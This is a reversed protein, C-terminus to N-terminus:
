NRYVIRHKDIGLFWNTGDEETVQIYKGAWANLETKNGDHSTDITLQTLLGRISYEKSYDKCFWKKASANAKTAKLTQNRYNATIYASHQFTREWDRKYTARNADAISSGEESNSISSEESNALSSKFRKPKTAKTLIIVNMMKEVIETPTMSMIEERRIAFAKKIREIKAEEEALLEDLQSKRINEANNILSRMKKKLEFQKRQETLQKRQETLQKCREALEAELEELVSEEDPEPEQVREQQEADAVIEIGSSSLQISSLDVDAPEDVVVDQSMGGASDSIIIIARHQELNQDPMTAKRIL